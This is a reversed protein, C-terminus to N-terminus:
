GIPLLRAVRERHQAPDGFMLRASSARKFYLHAPHEWAFGIGGHIRINEAAAHPYADSCYAAALSAVM